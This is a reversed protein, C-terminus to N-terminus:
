TSHDTLFKVLRCSWFVYTITFYPLQLLWNFGVRRYARDKGYRRDFRHKIQRRATQSVLNHYVLQMFSTECLSFREQWLGERM